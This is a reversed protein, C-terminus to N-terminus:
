EDKLLKNLSSDEKKILDSFSGTEAVQGGSIVIVRDFNEALSARQLVWILTKGKTESLVNSMVKRQSNPDLASTTENLILIDPRRLLARAMSLKQRQAPSLKSGALGVEFSLGVEIVASRLNDSEIVKTILSGVQEIANAKDLAIKGFLINDQLSASGNYKDEAFFEISGRLNDPISASFAKRAELIRSKMEDDILGLRHRAPILKFPLALFKDQDEKEMKTLGLRNARGLLIQFDPLDDSSIFSYQSFYEHDPPLDAFLEVMTSAVDRGIKVFEETLGVAQLTKRVYVNDAINEIFFEAGVPTGFLLNEAISANSNFKELDFSEVLQSLKLKDLKERLIKRSALVSATL